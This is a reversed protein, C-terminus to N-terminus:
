KWRPYLSDPRSFLSLSRPAPIRYQSNGYPRLVGHYRSSREEYRAKAPLAADTDIDGTYRIGGDAIVPIGTGKLAESVNYVATLQPVGIGAIIRTTCISGPGIGVKIADVDLKALDKAAEATAINGIVLDINPFAKRLQKTVNFVNKSHGHATDVVIADVGADVLAQAREM